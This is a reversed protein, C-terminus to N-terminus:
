HSHKSPLLRTDFSPSSAQQYARGGAEGSFIFRMEEAARLRVPAEDTADVLAHRRADRLIPMGNFSPM